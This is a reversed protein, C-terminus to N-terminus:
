LFWYILESVVRFDIRRNLRSWLCEFYVFRELIFCLVFEEGSMRRKYRNGIITVLDWLIKEGLMNSDMKEKGKKVDMRM